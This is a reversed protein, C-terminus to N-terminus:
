AHHVLACLNQAKTQAKSEAMKHRVGFQLMDYGDGGYFIYSSLSIKYDKDDVLPGFATESPYQRVQWSFRASPPAVLRLPGLLRQVLM